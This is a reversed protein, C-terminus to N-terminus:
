EDLSNFFKMLVFFPFEFTFCLLFIIIFCFRALKYLEISCSFVKSETTILLEGIEFAMDHM